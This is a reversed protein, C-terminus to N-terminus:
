RDKRRSTVRPVRREKRAKPSDFVGRVTEALESLQAQQRELTDARAKHATAEAQIVALATVADDREQRLAALGREHKAMQGSAVRQVTRTEQRARDVELSTRKELAEVYQDHRAREAQAASEQDTHLKRLTAVEQELRDARDLATHRQQALDDLQSAQQAILRTADDLRTSALAESRRVAALEDAIRESSAALARRESELREQDLTVATHAAQLAADALRRADELTREWLAQALSAVAPPADPMQLRANQAQLRAGLDAWWVDLLRILTNPSGTGLKARVREITPREGALLLADAAENVNDQTVGSRAM